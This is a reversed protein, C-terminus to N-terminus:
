PVYEDQVNIGETLEGQRIFLLNVIGAGLVLLFLITANLILIRKKACPWQWTLYMRKGVVAMYPVSARILAGKLVSVNKPQVKKAIQNLGIALSCSAM